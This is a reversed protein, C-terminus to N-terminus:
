EDTVQGPHERGGLCIWRDRLDRTFVLTGAHPGLPKLRRRWAEVPRDVGRSRLTLRGIGRDRLWTRIPGPKPPLLAELAVWTGPAPAPPGDCLLYAIRPHVPRLGWQAALDGVLGAVTVAPDPDLLWQGTRPAVPTPWARGDGQVFTGDPLRLARRPPADAWAGWLLRRERARGALSVVEFPLPPGAPRAPGLKVLAARYPDLWRAWAAPPPVYADPDHERRGTARRDPDLFAFPTDAPARAGDGEHVTIRAALDLAEVNHRLLHARVPDLEYVRVERGTTGAALADIGIGGTLDTVAGPGPWRGARELAVAWASAQEAAEPTFLLREAHPIRASARVRVEDQVLAWRTEDAGAERRLVDARRHPPEGRLSRTRELLRVGAGSTLFRAAALDMAPHYPPNGPVIGPPLGTVMGTGM